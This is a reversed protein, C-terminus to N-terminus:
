NAQGQWIRPERSPPAPGATLDQDESHLWVGRDNRAYATRPDYSAFPPQKLGVLIVLPVWWATLASALVFTMKRNLFSRRWTSRRFRLRQRAVAVVVHSAESQAVGQIGGRLVQLAVM